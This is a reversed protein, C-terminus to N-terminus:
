ATIIKLVCIITRFSIEPCYDRIQPFLGRGGGITYCWELHRWMGWIHGKAGWMHGGAGRTHGGCTGDMPFLSIDKHFSFSTTHRISFIIQSKLPKSPSFPAQPPPPPKLPASPPPSITLCKITCYTWWQIHLWLWMIYGYGCSSVGVHHHLWM